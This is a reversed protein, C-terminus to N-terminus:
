RRCIWTAIHLCQCPVERCDHGRRQEAEGSLDFLKDVEIGKTMSGVLNQYAIFMM